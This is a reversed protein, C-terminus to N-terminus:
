VQLTGSFVSTAPGTLCVHSDKAWDVTLEGGKLCIKVKRGTLENLVSAVVSACAGTGCALTEGVGREWVRLEIESNSIVHVFEVNAKKPFVPHNEIEKGLEEIDFAGLDINAGDTFVVAHPNGMSVATIRIKRYKLQLAENIAKSEANGNMPIEKRILGPSGMDVRFMGNAAVIRKIGSATEINLERSKSYANDTVFKAICRIGNGCMEAESGDANIIRMRADCGKKGSPLALLVGDAGIGFHRDCVNRAFSKLDSIGEFVRRNSSDFLGIVVYDNGLGHMKSFKLQAAM